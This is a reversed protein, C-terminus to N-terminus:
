SSFTVQNVADTWGAAMIIQVTWFLLRSINEIPRGTNGTQRGINKDTQRYERVTQRHAQTQIVWLCTSPMLVKRTWRHLCIFYLLVKYLSFEEEEENM